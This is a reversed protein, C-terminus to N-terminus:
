ASPETEELVLGMSMVCAVQVLLSAVLGRVQACAPAAAERPGAQRRIRHRRHLPAVVRPVAGTQEAPGCTGPGGM